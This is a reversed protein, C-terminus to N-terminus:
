EDDWLPNIVLGTPTKPYFYTSKPPMRLGADAVALVNSIAAPALLFALQYAGSDVASIAKVGDRTYELCSEEKEASNIGLISPLIMWHLLSVDLDKVPSPWDLLMRGRLTEEDQPALLCLQQGHLGYLGITTGRERRRELIDLWSAVTESPTNLPPLLEESYFYTSLGEKLKAIREEHLGRVLRHTPFMVLDPDEADTLTMMVFNFGEDGKYSSHASRQERQYALATEYRHHGDAIYVTKDTFFQSVRATSKEDSVVWVHYAVGGDDVASLAPRDLPLEGLLARVGRGEYRFLGMVPSFNARCSQLLLFRDIAPGRMTMEHPRIQGTNLDELRIRAILSFRSRVGNQFPFRHEVLYFAPHNERVLISDQLWTEMTSAARTYKNDEASDTALEQGFELRIVNHRSKSYYVSQQEPSIVDYPPTIVTSFDGIRELNYRLGRFPQVDAM